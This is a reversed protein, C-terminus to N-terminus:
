YHYMVMTTLTEKSEAEQKTVLILQEQSKNFDEIM